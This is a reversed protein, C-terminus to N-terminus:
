VIKLETRAPTWAALYPKFFPIKQTISRRFRIMRQIGFNYPINHHGHEGFSMIKAYRYHSNCFNRQTDAQQPVVLYSKV